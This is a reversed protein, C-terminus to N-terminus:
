RQDQRIWIVGRVQENLKIIIIMMMIKTKMTATIYIDKKLSHRFCIQVIINLSFTPHYFAISPSVHQNEMIKNGM